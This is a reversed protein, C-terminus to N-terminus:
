AYVIGSGDLQGGYSLFIRKLDKMKHKPQGSKSSPFSAWEDGLKEVAREFQGTVVERLAKHKKDILWVAARDQSEPGFDPLKLARQADGFTGVMMQYAGAATSRGWPTRFRINPHRSFDYFMRDTNDRGVRYGYLARYGNEDATGESARITALFAGINEGVTRATYQAHMFGPDGGTGGSGGAYWSPDFVEADDSGWASGDFVEADDSSWPDWGSSSAEYAAGDYLPSGPLADAYDAGTPLFPAVTGVSEAIGQAFRMMAGADADEIDAPTYGPALEYAVPGAFARANFFLWAAAGVSSVILVDRTEM